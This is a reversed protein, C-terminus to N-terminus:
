KSMIFYNSFFKISKWQIFPETLYSNFKFVSM